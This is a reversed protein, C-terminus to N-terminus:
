RYRRSVVESLEGFGAPYHKWGSKVVTIKKENMKLGNSARFKDATKLNRPVKVIGSLDQGM